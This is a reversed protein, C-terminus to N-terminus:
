AMLSPDGERRLKKTSEAIKALVVLNGTGSTVITM